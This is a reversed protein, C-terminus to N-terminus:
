RTRNTFRFLRSIFASPKASKELSLFHNSLLTTKWTAANNVSLISDLKFIFFLHCLFSNIMFHIFHRDSATKVGLLHLCVFNSDGNPVKLVILGGVNYFINRKIFIEIPICISQPLSFPIGSSMQSMRVDHMLLFFLDQILLYMVTCYHVTYYYVLSFCFVHRYLSPISEDSLVALPGTRVLELHFWICGTRVQALCLWNLISGSLMVAFGTPM